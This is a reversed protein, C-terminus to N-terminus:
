EFIVGISKLLETSIKLMANESTKETRVGTSPEDSVFIPLTNHKPAKFKEYISIVRKMYEPTLGKFTGIILANAYIVEMKISENNYKILDDISSISPKSVHSNSLPTIFSDNIMSNGIEYSVKIMDLTKQTEFLTYNLIPCIYYRCLVKNEFNVTSAGHKKSNNLFALKFQYNHITEM